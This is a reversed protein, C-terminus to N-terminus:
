PWGFSRPTWAPVPIVNTTLRVDSMVAGPMTSVNLPLGGSPYRSPDVPSGGVTWAAWAIRGYGKAFYSRELATSSQVDGGGSYHESIITDATLTTHQGKLIAPFPMAQYLCVQTPAQNLGSPPTPAGLSINLTAILQTWGNSCLIINQPSVVWGTGGVFYQTLNGPTAGGPCGTSANTQGGGPCSLTGGDQTKTIVLTGNQIDYVEGGDGQVPNQVADGTFGWLTMGVGTPDRVSDFFAYPQDGPGWDGRRQTLPTDLTAQV